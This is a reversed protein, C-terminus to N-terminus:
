AAKRELSRIYMWRELNADAFAVSVALTGKPASVIMDIRANQFISLGDYDHHIALLYNSASVLVHYAIQPNM